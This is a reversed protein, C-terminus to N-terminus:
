MDTLKLQEPLKLGLKKLFIQQHEDPRTVCRKRIVIGGRTPLVIVDVFLKKQRGNSGRRRTGSVKTLRKM